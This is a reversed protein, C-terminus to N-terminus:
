PWAPEDLVGQGRVRTEGHDRVLEIAADGSVDELAAVLAAAHSIVWVQSRRSAAVIQRALPRLLDPHLSQEPENLVLLEPPRPSLLAALLCLYRLTGDSLETATLARLLGEVQLGVELRADDGHIALSSGPFADDIAAHLTEADGIEIITQLAAALDRGDNALAETQVSTRAFRLPSDADTRFGDYFRWRRVRERLAFVEPFREPEGLEALIARSSSPAFNLRSWEGDRDRLMVNAGDRELWTNGRRRPPKQWVWESKVEPDLRFRSAGGAVPNGGAPLGLEIAYSYDDCVFGLGIRLPARRATGQVPGGRRVQSRLDAPGAWQVSPIGGENALAEALRGDAAHQVLRLARYLNSKGSGNAGTVVTLAGLSLKLDRLSRYNSVAFAHLM